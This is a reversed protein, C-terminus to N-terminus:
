CLYSLIFIDYNKEDNSIRIYKLYNAQTIFLEGVEM